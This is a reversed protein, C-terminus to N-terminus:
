DYEKVSARKQASRTRLRKTRSDFTCTAASRNQRDGTAFQWKKKVTTKIKGYKSM